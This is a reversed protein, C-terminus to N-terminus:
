WSWQSHSHHPSYWPDLLALRWAWFNTFQRYKWRFNMGCWWLICPIQPLFFQNIWSNLVVISACPFPLQKKKWGALRIWRDLHGNFWAPLLSIYSTIPASVVENGVNPLHTKNLRGHWLATESKLFFILKPLVLWDIKHDGLCRNIKKESKKWPEPTSSLFVDVPAIAAAFGVHCRQPPSSTDLLSRLHWSFM